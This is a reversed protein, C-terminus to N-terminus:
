LLDAVDFSSHAGNTHVTVIYIAVIKVFASAEALETKSHHSVKVLDQANGM